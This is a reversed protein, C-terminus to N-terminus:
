IKRPNSMLSAVDFFQLFFRQTFPTFYYDQTYNPGQSITIKPVIHAITLDPCASISHRLDNKGAIFHAIM